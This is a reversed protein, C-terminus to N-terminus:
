LSAIGEIDDDVGARLIWPTEYGVQIKPDAWIKYGQSKVQMCFGVDVGTYGAFDDTEKWIPRFWPYQLSEFVGQKVALFGLGAVEVEFSDAHPDVDQRTLWHIENLQADIGAVAFTNNDQTPYFGSVIDRDAYSILRALDQTTWCQDSSIWILWDYSRAGQFPKQNKGLAAQGQLLANYCEYITPDFHSHAEWTIGQQALWQVTSNWCALWTGSYQKGPLCFILKMM